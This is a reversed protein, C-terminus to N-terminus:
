SSQFIVFFHKPM